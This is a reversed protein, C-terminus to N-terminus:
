PVDLLIVVSSVHEIESLEDRLQRIDSLIEPSFLPLVPSYTVVLFDDSGYQERVNRYYKLTADNELILSDASADLEFESLHSLLFAVAIAIVLLTGIPNHLVIKHYLKILLAAM